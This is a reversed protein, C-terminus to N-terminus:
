MGTLRNNVVNILHKITPIRGKATGHITASSASIKFENWKAAMTTETRSTSIFVGNVAGGGHRKFYDINLVAMANKSNCFFKTRKEKLVAFKQITQKRGDATNYKAHKVFIVLCFRKCWTEDRDEMSKSSIQFPIRM